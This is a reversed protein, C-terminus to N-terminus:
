GVSILIPNGRWVDEVEVIVSPECHRFPAFDPHLGLQQNFNPHLGLENVINQLSSLPRVQQTESLLRTRTEAKQFDNRVGAIGSFSSLNINGSKRDNAIASRINDAYSSYIDM